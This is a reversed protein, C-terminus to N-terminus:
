PCGPSGNCRNGGLDTFFGLFTGDIYNDRLLPGPAVGGVVAHGTSSHVTCRTVLGLDDETTRDAGSFVLGRSNFAVLCDTISCRGHVTASEADPPTGGPGACQIGDDTNETSAVGILVGSGVFIGNTGNLSTTVNRIMVGDDADIGDANNFRFSSNVVTLGASDNFLGDAGNERSTCGSVVSGSGGIEIGDLGNGVATSDSVIVGFGADIGDTGNHRAISRTVIGAREVLIGDAGNEWATVDV